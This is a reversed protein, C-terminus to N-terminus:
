IGEEECLQLVMETTVPKGDKDEFPRFGVRRYLEERQEEDAHVRLERVLIELREVEELKLTPLAAEIEAFTIM